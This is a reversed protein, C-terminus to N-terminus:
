ALLQGSPGHLEFGVKGTDLTRGVGKGGVTLGEIPKAPKAGELAVEYNVTSSAPVDAFFVLRVFPQAAPACSAAAAGPTVELVQFPVPTKKDKAVHFLRVDDAKGFKAKEFRVTVEVPTGTRALGTTETLKISRTNKVKDPNQASVSLCVLGLCLLCLTARM